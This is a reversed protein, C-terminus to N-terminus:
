AGGNQRANYQNIQSAGGLITRSADGISGIMQGVGQMKAARGQARYNIANIQFGRSERVANERIANADESALLAADGSVDLASGFGVDVGSAALAANQAGRLGAAQRGQLIADQRGRALADRAAMNAQRANEKGLENQYKGQQMAMYGSTLSAAASVATAVGITVPDCM